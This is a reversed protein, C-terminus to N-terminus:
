SRLFMVGATFSRDQANQEEQGRCRGPLWTSSSSANSSVPAARATCGSLLPRSGRPQM